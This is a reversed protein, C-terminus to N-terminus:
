KETSDTSEVPEPADSNTSEPDDSDTSEPDDSDTSEPDAEVPDPDTGDTVLAEPGTGVGDTVLPMSAKAENLELVVADIQVDLKFRRELLVDLRAQVNAIRKLAKAQQANRAETLQEELREVASRRPKPAKPETGKAETKKIAM